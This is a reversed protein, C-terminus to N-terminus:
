RSPGWENEESAVDVPVNCSAFQASPCSKGLRSKRDLPLDYTVSAIGAQPRNSRRLAAFDAGHISRRQSGQMGLVMIM